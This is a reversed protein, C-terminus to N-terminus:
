SVRVLSFVNEDESITGILAFSSSEELMITSVCFYNYCLLLVKMSTYQGGSSNSKYSCSYHLVFSFTREIATAYNTSCNINILICYFWFIGDSPAASSYPRSKELGWLM